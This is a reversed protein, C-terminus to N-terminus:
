KTNNEQFLLSYFRYFFIQHNKKLLLLNSELLKAIKCTKKNFFM